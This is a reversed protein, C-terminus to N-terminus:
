ARGSGGHYGTTGAEAPMGPAIEDAHSGFPYVDAELIGQANREQVLCMVGKGTLMHDLFHVNTWRNWKQLRYELSRIRVTEQPHYPTGTHRVVKTIEVAVTELDLVRSVRGVIIDKM